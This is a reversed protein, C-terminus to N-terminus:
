MLVRVQLLGGGAYPPSIQKPRWVSSARHLVCGQGPVCVCVCVWRVATILLGPNWCPRRDMVPENGTKKLGESPMHVCSLCHSTRDKGGGSLQDLQDPHDCQSELPAWIRTRWQSTRNGVPFWHEPFLLSVLGQVGSELKIGPSPVCVCM